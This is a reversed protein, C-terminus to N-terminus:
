FDLAFGYVWFGEVFKSAFEFSRLYPHIRLFCEILERSLRM